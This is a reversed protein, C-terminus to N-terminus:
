ASAPAATSIEVKAGSIKGLYFALDNVSERLRRRQTEADREPEPTTVALKKDDEMVEPAVYIAVQAAGDKILTVSPPAAPKQAHIVGAFLLSLLPALHRIRHPSPM